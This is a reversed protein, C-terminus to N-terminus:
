RKKKKKNMYQRDPNDTVVEAEEEATSSVRGASPHEDDAKLTQPAASPAPPQSTSQFSPKVWDPLSKYEADPIIQGATILRGAHINALAKYPM